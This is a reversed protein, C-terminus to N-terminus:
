GIREARKTAFVKREGNEAYTQEHEWSGDGLSWRWTLPGTAYAFEFVITDGDRRGLGPVAAYAAGFVDMLTLVFRGDTAGIFYTAEYPKGDILPTGNTVRIEVFKGGLARSASWSQALPQGRMQGTVRWTGVLAELLEDDTRPRSMGDRRPPM